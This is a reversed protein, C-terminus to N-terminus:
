DPPLTELWDDIREWAEFLWELRDEPLETAPTCWFRIRLTKGVILGEWLDVWRTTGEFGRHGCVVIEGKGHEAFRELLAGPGGSRPPLLHRLSAAREAADDAGQARLSEVVRQQKAPTFRTGEPFIVVADDTELDDALAAVARVEAAPDAARRDVFVAPVRHGAVDMCPDWLLERKLVYRPRLGFPQSFLVIPLLTDGMSAHRMLLLLPGSEPRADGPEFVLRLDFLRLAGGFVSGAWWNVLAYHRAAWGEPDSRGGGHAFWLVGCAVIGATECALMWLAFLGMRVETFRKRRVVGVVLLAPLWLPASALAAAFAVLVGPITLLRRALM